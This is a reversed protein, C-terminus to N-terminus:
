KSPNSISLLEPHEPDRRGVVALLLTHTHTHIHTHMHTHPIQDGWVCVCVCKCVHVSEGRTWRSM